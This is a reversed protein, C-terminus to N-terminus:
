SWQRCAVSGQRWEPTLNGNSLGIRGTINNKGPCAESFLSLPKAPKSDEVSPRNRGPVIGGPTRYREREMSFVKVGIGYVRDGVRDWQITPM